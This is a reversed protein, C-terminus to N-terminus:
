VLNRGTEHARLHTYSVTEYVWGVPNIATDSDTPFFSISPVAQPKAIMLLDLLGNSSALVPPEVFAGALVATQASLFAVVVSLAGIWRHNRSQRQDSRSPM